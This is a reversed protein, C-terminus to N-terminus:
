EKNYTVEVLYGTSGLKWWTEPSLKMSIQAEDIDWANCIIKYVTNSYWSTGHVYAKFHNEDHNLVCVDRIPVHCASALVDLITKATKDKM